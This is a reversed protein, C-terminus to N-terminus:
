RRRNVRRVGLSSRRRIGSRYDSAVILWDTIGAALLANRWSGFLVNARLVLPSGWKDRVVQKAILSKGTRKRRRIEAIVAAKHARPWPSNERAPKVGAALLAANWSGFLKDCRHLLAKGHKVKTVKALRLSQGKRRRRRIWAVIAAKDADVWWTWAQKNPSLGAARMAASWSGFLERARLTLPQGWKEKAIKKAILTQGKRKRRRIESVVAARDAHPWSSKAGEYPELGAAIVADSWRGFLIRVRNLIATGFKERVIKKCSLTKGARQRRRIESIIAAKDARHWRTERFPHRRIYARAEAFTGFCRLVAAHLAAEEKRISEPQVSKGQLFRERLGAM